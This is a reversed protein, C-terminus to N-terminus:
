TLRDGRSRGRQRWGSLTVKYVTKAGGTFPINHRVPLLESMVPFLIRLGEAEMREWAPKLFRVPNLHLM